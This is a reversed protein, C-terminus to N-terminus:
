AAASPLPCAPSESCFQQLDRSSLLRLPVSATHGCTGQRINGPLLPGPVATTFTVKLPFTCCNSDRPFFTSYLRWKEIWIHSIDCIKRYFIISSVSSSLFTYDLSSQFIYKPLNQAIFTHVDLSTNAMKDDALFVHKSLLPQTQCEKGVNKKINELFM